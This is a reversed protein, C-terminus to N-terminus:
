VCGRWNNASCVALLTGRRRPLVGFASCPSVRCLPEHIQLADSMWLASRYLDEQKGDIAGHTYACLACRDHLGAGRVSEPPTQNTSHIPQNTQRAYTLIARGPLWKLRSCTFRDQIVLHPCTFRLASILPPQM